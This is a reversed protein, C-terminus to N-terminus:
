DFRARLDMESVSILLVAIERNDVTGRSEPAIGM